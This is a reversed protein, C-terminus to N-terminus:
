QVILVFACSLIFILSIISLIIYYTNEGGDILYMFSSALIAIGISLAVMALLFYLFAAILTGVGGYGLFYFLAFCIILIIKHKKFFKIQKKLITNLIVM